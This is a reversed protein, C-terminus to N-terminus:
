GVLEFLIAVMLIIALAEQYSIPRSMFLSTVLRNWFGRIVLAGTFILAVGLLIAVVVSAAPAIEFFDDMLVHNDGEPDFLCAVLSAYILYLFLLINFGVSVAKRKADGAIESALEEAKSPLSADM